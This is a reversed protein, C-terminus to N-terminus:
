LQMAKFYACSDSKYGINQKPPFDKRSTIASLKKCYCRGYMKNVYAAYRCFPCQQDFGSHM